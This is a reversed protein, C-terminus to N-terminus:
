DEFGSKNEKEDEQGKRELYQCCARAPFPLAPCSSLGKGTFTKM